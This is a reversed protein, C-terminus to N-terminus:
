PKLVFEDVLWEESQKLLTIEAFGRRGSGSFTVSGSLTARDGSISRSSFDWKEPQIGNHEIKTQLQEADGELEKRQSTCLLLAADYHGDRLAQMFAEGQNAAPSTLGFAAGFSVGFIAVFLGVCICALVGLVVVIIIVTRQSM